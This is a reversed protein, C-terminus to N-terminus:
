GATLRLNVVIYFGGILWLLEALLNVVLTCADHLVTDCELCTASEHLHWFVGSFALIHWFIGAYM